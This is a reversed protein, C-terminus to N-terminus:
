SINTIGNTLTSNLSKGVVSKGKKYEEMMLSKSKNIILNIWEIFQM